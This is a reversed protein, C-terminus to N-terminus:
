RDRANSDGQKESSEIVDLAQELQEKTMVAEKYVVEGFDKELAEIALAKGIRKKNRGTPTYGLEQKLYSVADELSTFKISEDKEVISRYWVSIAMGVLESRSKIAPYKGKIYRLVTALETIPVRASVVIGKM